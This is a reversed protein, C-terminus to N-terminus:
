IYDHLPELPFMQVVAASYRVKEVTCPSIMTRMVVDFIHLYVIAYRIAQVNYYQKHNPVISNKLQIKGPSDLIM